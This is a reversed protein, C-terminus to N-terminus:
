FSQIITPIGDVFELIKSTDFKILMSLLTDQNITNTMKGIQIRYASFYTQTLQIAVSEASLSSFLEYGPLLPNYQPNKYALWRDESIKWQNISKSIEKLEDSFLNLTKNAGWRILRGSERIGNKVVYIYFWSDENQLESQIM